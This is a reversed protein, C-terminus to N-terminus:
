AAAQLAGVASSVVWALGLWSVPTTLVCLVGLLLRHASVQVFHCCCWTAATGACSTQAV